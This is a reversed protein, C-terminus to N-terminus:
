CRVHQELTLAEKELAGSGGIKGRLETSQPPPSPATVYSAALLLVALELLTLLQNPMLFEVM